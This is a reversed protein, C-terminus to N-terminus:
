AKIGSDLPIISRLFLFFSYATWLEHNSPAKWDRYDYKEM